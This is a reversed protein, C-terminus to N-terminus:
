GASAAAGGGAASASAGAGGTAGPATAAGTAGLTSFSSAVAGVSSTNSSFIIWSFVPVTDTNQAIINELEEGKLGLALAYIFHKDLKDPSLSHQKANELGEKYNNWRHITKQGEETPRIIAVSLVGMVVTSIMAVFFSIPELADGGAFFALGLTGGVLVLQLGANWYAGRYSALDIWNQDFCYSKLKKSWNSFWNSVASDNGEFIEHLKRKGGELRQEMFELLHKEWALLDDSKAKETRRVSFTPDDDEFLGEEPEEEAIKLYGRRALDLVTAILQVSSISRNNLLWGIAAPARREPIMITEQSSLRSTSHRKGYKQYLFYFLLVAVVAIGYNIQQSTQHWYANRARRDAEAQQHAQELMQAQQLSFGENTITPNKLVSTPFLARVKAFESDDIDTASVTFKGASKQLNFHGKPGRTWGHLSDSSVTKPLNISIDLQKTAKDRSASLFNWFLQSWEPGVTMAEELTYSITFTRKEDKATYHWKLNISEDSQAVSFTGPEETNKNLFAQGDESIRINELSSFGQRPLRYEAWSFSGDFDYTLHETIRVTGDANISVEVKITPIEYSKATSEILGICFLLLSLLLTRAWINISNKSLFLSM